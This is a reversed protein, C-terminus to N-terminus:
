GVEEEVLLTGLLEARKVEARKDNDAQSMLPKGDEGTLEKREAWNVADPDPNNRRRNGLFHKAASADPPYHKLTETIVPEGLYIAIHQDSHSYGKARQYLSHAVDADAILKGEKISESFDAYEEQWLYYTSTAIGLCSAIEKDSAGLLCLKYVLTNYKERYETPRGMKPSTGETKEEDKDFISKPQPVLPYHRPGRYVVKKSEQTKNTPKTRPKQKHNAPPKNRGGKPKNGRPM